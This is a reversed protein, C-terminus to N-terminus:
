RRLNPVSFRHPQGDHRAHRGDPGADRPLLDPREPVERDRRQEHRDQDADRRAYRRLVEEARGHETTNLHHHGYVVPGEKASTLQASAISASGAVLLAAFLLVLM